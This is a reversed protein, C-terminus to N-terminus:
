NRNWVCDQLQLLEFATGFGVRLRRLATSPVVVSTLSSMSSSPSIELSGCARAMDAKLSDRESLMLRKWAM